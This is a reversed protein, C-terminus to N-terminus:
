GFCMVRLSVIVVVVYLGCYLLLVDLVVVGVLGGVCLSFVACVVGFVVVVM